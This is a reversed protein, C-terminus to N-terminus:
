KMAGKVVLTVLAIIVASLIIAVTGYVLRKIPDFELRTIYNNTICLEINDVKTKIYGVDKGLLAISTEESQQGDTARRNLYKDMM